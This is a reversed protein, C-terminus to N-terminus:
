HSRLPKTVSSIEESGVSTNVNAPHQLASERLPKITGDDVCDWAAHLGMEVGTAM